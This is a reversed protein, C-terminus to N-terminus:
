GFGATYVGARPVVTGNDIGEGLHAVWLWRGACGEFGVVFTGVSDEIGLHALFDEFSEVHPVPPHLVADFLVHEVEDPRWSLKVKGIIEGLM